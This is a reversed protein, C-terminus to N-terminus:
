FTAVKGLSQGFDLVVPPHPNHACPLLTNRQGTGTNCAGRIKEIYVNWPEIVQWDPNKGFNKVWPMAWVSNTVYYYPIFMWDERFLRQAEQALRIRDPDDTGKTAAEELL